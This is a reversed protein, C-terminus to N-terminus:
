NRAIDIRPDIIGYLIDVILLLIILIFSYFITTGMILTYDRNGISTVFFAGLGPIGFIKEIVFSGTILGALTTGMTSVIPLIANRVAHNMIVRIKSLGKSKATKVYDQGLVELMSSRMLRASSAMPMFSLALSPLITHRFSGWGGIPFFESEQAIFKIFITALIFSPVSIGILAIIMMIYDPAKNQYLAAISGFLPGLIMAIIFAQLGLRASVPAGRKIMQNVNEASSYMSDGLDGHVVNKLYISYQTSLPQDLGYRKNLSDYVAAPMRGEKSFPDGPVAHMMIFTVTIIVWMTIIALILRKGIFKKM